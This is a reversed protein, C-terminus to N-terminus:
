ETQTGSKVDTASIRQGHAEVFVVFGGAAAEVGLPVGPLGDDGKLVEDTVILVDDVLYWVKYVSVSTEQFHNFTFRRM